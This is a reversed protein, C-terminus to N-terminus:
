GRYEQNEEVLRRLHELESRLDKDRDYGRETILALSEIATELDKAEARQLLATVDGFDHPRGEPQYALVKLAILHGISAVPMFSGEVVELLDAAAVIEPEIGSSAFLFDVIIGEGYTRPPLLRVTAMRRAEQHEMQAKMSYGRSFFTKVVAQAEGDDAVAVALDIDRTTRPEARASVALGGILAWAIDLTRLDRDVRVLVDLLRIM